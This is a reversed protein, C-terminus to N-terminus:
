TVINTKSKCSTQSKRRTMQNGGGIFSFM